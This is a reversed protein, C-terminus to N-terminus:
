LSYSHIEEFALINFNYQTITNKRKQFKDNITRVLLLYKKESVKERTAQNKKNGNDDENLLIKSKWLVFHKRDKTLDPSYM